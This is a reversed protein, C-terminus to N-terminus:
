FGICIKTGITADRRSAFPTAGKDICILILPAIDMKMIDPVNHKRILSEMASESVYAELYKANKKKLEASLEMVALQLGM